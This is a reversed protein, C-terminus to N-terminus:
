PTVDMGCWSAAVRGCTHTGTHMSGSGMSLESM